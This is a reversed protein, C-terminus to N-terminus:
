YKKTKLSIETDHISNLSKESQQYVIHYYLADVISLQAIRSNLALINYQTEDSETHLVYDSHKQIPSKGKNTICVTIAGHDKAIQLAEIVDKSSGSHSIGIAVDGPNLHSAAIVQMHNDTYAVANYGARLLKHSAAMAIAASNGLGLIIIKGASRIAQSTKELADKDLVKKTRELSCYIDNCVKEYIDFAGDSASMNANVITSRNEQALSIKLEQYGSFGLKKAFRVITAESSDCKEALEVISLPLIDGPNEMIWDAVRKEAKGLSEYIVKINLTTKNM